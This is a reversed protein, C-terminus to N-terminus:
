IFITAAKPGSDPGFLPWAWLLRFRVDERPTDTKGGLIHARNPPWWLRGAFAQIYTRQVRRQPTTPAEATTETPAPRPPPQPPPPPPGCCTRKAPPVRPECQLAAHLGDVGRTPKPVVLKVITRRMGSDGNRQDDGGVGFMRPTSGWWWSQTPHWQWPNLREGGMGLMRELTRLVM